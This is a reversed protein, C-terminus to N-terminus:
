WEYEEDDNFPVGVEVETVEDYEVNLVIWYEENVYTAFFDYDEEEWEEIHKGFVEKKVKEISSNIIPKGQYTLTPSSCRIYGLKGEHDEFFTLRLKSKNYQYLLQNEDDEDQYIKDPKGLKAVVEEAKMGFTFDGIGKKPRIEM